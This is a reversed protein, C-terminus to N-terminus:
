LRAMAPTVDARYQGPTIGYAARFKRIFHSADYFGLAASVASLDRGQRLLLQARNLRYQLFWAHPPLGYAQRFQRLLHFRSAGAAHALESLSVNRSTQARLYERARSAVPYRCGLVQRAVCCRAHRGILCAISDVFRSERALQDAHSETELARHLALLRTALDDDDVIAEPFLPWEVQDLGTRERSIRAVVEAEIYFMRYNYTGGDLPKGDHVDEPNVMIVSRHPHANWRRGRDNFGYQGSEVLGIAYGEHTHRAYNHRSGSAKLLEVGDLGKPRWFNTLSNSVALESILRM